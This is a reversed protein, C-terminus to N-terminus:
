LDAPPCHCLVLRAPPCHCLVLRAPPCHCLVLRAPPYHCLVLRAPSLLKFDSVLLVSSPHCGFLTHSFPIVIKKIHLLYVVSLVKLTLAKEQSFLRLYYCARFTTHLSKLALPNMRTHVEKSTTKLKMHM